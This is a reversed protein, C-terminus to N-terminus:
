MPGPMTGGGCGQYCFGQLYWPQQACGRYCDAEEQARQDSFYRDSEWFADWGAQWVGGPDNWFHDWTQSESDYSDPTGGCGAYPHSADVLVGGHDYFCENMPDGPTPRRDELIGRFGCHFWASNGYYPKWGAPVPDTANLHAPCPLMRQIQEDEGASQQIVHTLEHALLFKGTSTDPNFKGANFYIDSGHTFAQAGLERNLQVAEADTHITVHSFDLGFSSAMESITKAPLTKGTGSSQEVRSSVQSSAATGGGGAGDPKRQMTGMGEEKEEKDPDVQMQIGEKEEEQGPVEAKRQIDKDRKMRAENTDLKEDEKSSALRQIGNIKKRQIAPAAGQTHNVVSGAMSDAEQELPDGPQNVSLKAQFFSDDKKTQIANQGTKNFFTTAPDQQEKEQGRPNRHRYTRQAYSM